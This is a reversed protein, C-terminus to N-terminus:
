KVETGTMKFKLEEKKKQRNLKRADIRQKISGILFGVGGVAFISYLSTMVVGPDDSWIGQGTDANQFCASLGILLTSILIFLKAQNKSDRVEHSMRNIEESAKNKGYSSYAGQKEFHEKFKEVGGYQDIESKLQELNTGLKKAEALIQEDFQEQTLEPNKPKPEEKTHKEFNFQM